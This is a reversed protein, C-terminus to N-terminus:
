PELLFKLSGPRAAAAVAEVGRELPYVEDLLPAVSVAATRLAELAPAFPGCRSGVLSIEHIVIPALDLSHHAAVTSKVVITGLPRVLGMAIALGEVAGTAEVVLDRGASASREDAAHLGLAGVRRRAGESRCVVTVDDGRAALVQAVLLGLKGAGVVASKGGALDRTQADSEFAAALPEVFVGTRDDVDDPVVHLNEVPLRVLEAFAGDAGQIGLVTRVPCHRPRGAQCTECRGCAFNIEGVVRRGQLDPPGEVVEGIFEHGLIGRFGMYGKLIQLDTSCIGALRVRVVATGDTPTPPPVDDVFGLERGDWVLARM